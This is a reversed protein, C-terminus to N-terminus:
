ETKTKGREKKKQEKKRREGERQTGESKQRERKGKNWYMMYNRVKKKVAINYLDYNDLSPKCKRDSLQCFM